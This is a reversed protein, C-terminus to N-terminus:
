LSLKHDGGGVGPSRVRADVNAALTPLQQQCIKVGPCQFHQGVMMEWLHLLVYCTYVSPYLASPAEKEGWPHWPLSCKINHLSYTPTFHM